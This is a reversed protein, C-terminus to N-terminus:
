GMSVDIAVRGRKLERPHLMGSEPSQPTALGLLEPHIAGGQIQRAM